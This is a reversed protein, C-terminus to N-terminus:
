IEDEGVVWTEARGADSWAIMEPLAQIADVYAGAVDGLEVAFNTLRCAVPAFMADANCFEGFLFDGGGGFRTRCDTWMEELRTINEAVGDGMGQGPTLRRINMPMNGRLATFGAHMENSISRAVARAEAESAWFGNDPHGEALYELIALTEWITLDGDQLVPVCRNPSVEAIAKAWDDDFLPILKETFPVGRVTMALWPRLSWSSYNKNGIILTYDSM